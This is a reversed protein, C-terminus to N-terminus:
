LVLLYTATGPFTVTYGFKEVTSLVGSINTLIDLSAVGSANTYGVGLTTGGASFTVAEGPEVPAGAKSQTLTASLTFLPLGLPSVSLVAPQAVLKTPYLYTYHDASWTASTGGTTTVFLSFTGAKAGGGTVATIETPSVVKVSTAAIAGTTGNGQGIVVKAGTVFGTGTITIATGGATPGTNPSVATM